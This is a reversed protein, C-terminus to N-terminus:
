KPLAFLPRHQCTGKQLVSGPNKALKQPDCPKSPDRVRNRSHAPADSQVTQHSPSTWPSTNAVPLILSWPATPLQSAMYQILNRLFNSQWVTSSLHSRSRVQDPAFLLIFAPMTNLVSTHTRRRSTHGVGCPLIHHVQCAPRQSTRISAVNLPQISSQNASVSGEDASYRNVLNSSLM